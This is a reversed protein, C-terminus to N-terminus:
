PTGELKTAGMMKLAEADCAATVEVVAAQTVVDLLSEETWSMRPIDLLVIPEGTEPCQAWYKATHSLHDGVFFKMQRALKLPKLDAHPKECRPCKELRTPPDLYPSVEEAPEEDPAQDMMDDM